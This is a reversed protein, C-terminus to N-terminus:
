KQSDKPITLLSTLDYLVRRGMFIKVIKGEAVRKNLTPDSIHYAAKTEERTKLIREKSVVPPITFSDKLESFRLDLSNLRDLIATFPNQNINTEM